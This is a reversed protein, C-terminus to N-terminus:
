NCHVEAPPPKRVFRFGTVRNIVVNFVYFAHYSIKAWPKGISEQMLAQEEAASAGPAVTPLYYEGEDLNQSLYELIAEQNPTYANEAGHVNLLSWSLFQWIFLILTGVLTAIMQKKM